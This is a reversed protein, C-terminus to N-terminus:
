YQSICCLTGEKPLHRGEPYVFRTTYDIEHNHSLELQTIQLGTEKRFALSCRAQCGTKFSCQNLRKRATSTHRKKGQKCEFIAYRYKYRETIDGEVGFTKCDRGVFVAGTRKQYNEFVDSFEPWSSFVRYGIQLDDAM